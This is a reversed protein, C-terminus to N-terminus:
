TFEQNALGPPSGPGLINEIIRFQRPADDHEMDLNPSEAPPTAHEVMGPVAPTPKCHGGLPTLVPVSGPEGLTHVV